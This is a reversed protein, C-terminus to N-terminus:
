ATSSARWASPSPRPRRGARGSLLPFPHFHVLVVEAGRRMLRYAAVPSDIGGSLLAVVKGSVGPPLGGLGPRREVELLAAGPLIRVM